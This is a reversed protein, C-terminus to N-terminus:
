DIKRELLIANANTCNIVSNYEIQLNQIVTLLSVRIGQAGIQAIVNQTVIVSKATGGSM